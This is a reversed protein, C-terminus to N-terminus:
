ALSIEWTVKFQKEHPLEYEEHYAFRDGDEIFWDGNIESCLGRNAWTIPSLYDESDSEEEMVYPRQYKQESYVDSDPSGTEMDPTPKCAYLICGCVCLIVACICNKKALNWSNM